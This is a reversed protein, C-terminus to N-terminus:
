AALQEAAPAKRKVSKGSAAQKADYRAKRAEKDIAKKVDPHYKPPRGVGSYLFERGTKACKLVRPGTEKPAKTSKRPM